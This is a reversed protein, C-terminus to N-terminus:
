QRNDSNCLGLPPLVFFLAFFSWLSFLSPILRIALVQRKQIRWPM